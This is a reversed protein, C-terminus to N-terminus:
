LPLVGFSKWFVHTKTLHGDVQLRRLYLVEDFSNQMTGSQLLNAERIFWWVLTFAEAFVVQRGRFTAHKRLLRVVWLVFVIGAQWFFNFSHVLYYICRKGGFIWFKAMWISVIDLFLLCWM